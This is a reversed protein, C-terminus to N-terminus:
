WADGPLLMIKSGGYPGPSERWEVKADGPLQWFSRLETAGSLQVFSPDDIRLTVPGRGIRCWPNLWAVADIEQSRVPENGLFRDRLKGSGYVCVFDALPVTLKTWEQPRVYRRSQYIALDVDKQDRIARYSLQYDFGGTRGSRMEGPATFRHWKLAPKAQMVFLLVDIAEARGLGVVTNRYDPADHRIFFQVADAGAVGGQTHIGVCQVEEASPGTAALVKGGREADDPYTLVAPTFRLPKERLWSQEFWETEGDAMYLNFVPLWKGAEFDSITEVIKVDAETFTPFPRGEGTAVLEIRELIFEGATGADLFVAVPEQAWRNYYNRTADTSFGPRRFNRRLPHNLSLDITATQPETSAALEAVRTYVDSNAYYATPGGAFVRVKGSVVKVHLRLADAEPPYFPALRLLTLAGQEFIKPNTVRVRLGHKGSGADAVIKTRSGSQAQERFAPPWRWNDLFGKQYPGPEADVFDIVTGLVTEPSTASKPAAATAGCVFLATSLLATSLFVAPLSGRSM